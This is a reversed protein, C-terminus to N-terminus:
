EAPFGFRREPEPSAGRSLWEMCHEAEKAPNVWMITRLEEVHPAIRAFRRRVNEEVSLVALDAALAAEILHCDKEMEQWDKEHLAAERIRQRLNANTQEKLPFVKNRKGDMTARWSRAFNSQHRNWESIIEETWVVRHCIRLVEKLFDRCHKSTPFTAKEGGSASAISADIVLRKSFTRPM